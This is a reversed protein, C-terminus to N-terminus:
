PAADADADDTGGHDDDHGQIPAATAANEAVAPRAPRRRSPQGQGSGPASGGGNRRGGGNDRQKAPNPAQQTPPQQDPGPAPMAPNPTSFPVQTQFIHDYEVMERKRLEAELDESLDFQNLITERSLENAQRLDFLFSAYAADFDLAIARPHFELKPMSELEPNRDLLPKFVYRELSRKIMHRRSEMGRAIVKVLKISDDGAAGAAYNGLVLLQLLRGSIRSDLTNWREPKLTNDLKPTVIEVHLRHDGVLVPVRALSRVMGQLNTLEEAKAPLQDTGKTIIIIFNTAGILYAREMQRLQAKMDLLEFVNKMRVPALREYAPRTLTHRFVNKPNLLFLHKTSPIGLATLEVIEQRSPVYRETVLRRVIEDDMAKNGGLIEDFVTAEDPTAIYALRESGFLTSGVPVVKLPDLLSMEAPANITISRRRQNGGVTRGRVKFTQTEWWVAVYAQSVIFLDRWIERMRRDLDIKAAIQNYVDQEDQELAFFDM